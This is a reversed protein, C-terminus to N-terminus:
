SHDFNYVACFNAISKFQFSLLNKVFRLLIGTGRAIAIKFSTGGADIGVYEFETM